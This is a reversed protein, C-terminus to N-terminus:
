CPLFLEMGEFPTEDADPAEENQKDYRSDCHNPSRGECLTQSVPADCSKPASVWCGDGGRIAAAETSTLFRSAPASDLAVITSVAVTLFAFLAVYSSRAYASM